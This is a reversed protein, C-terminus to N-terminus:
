DETAGFAPPPPPVPYDEAATKGTLIRSVMTVSALAAVLALVYTLFTFVSSQLPWGWWVSGLGHILGLTFAVALEAAIWSGIGILTWAVASRNRERALRTMMKPIRYILVYLELM